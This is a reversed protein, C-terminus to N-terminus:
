KATGARFFSYEPNIIDLCSPLGYWCIFIFYLHFLDQVFLSHMIPLFFALSREKQKIIVVRLITMKHYYTTKQKSIRKSISANFSTGSDNIM